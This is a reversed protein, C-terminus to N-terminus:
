AYRSFMQSVGYTRFKLAPEVSNLDRMVSSLRDMRFALGSSRQILHNVETLRNLSGNSGLLTEYRSFM